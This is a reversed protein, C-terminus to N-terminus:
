SLENRFAPGNDTVIVAPTGFVCFVRAVLLQLTELATTGITPILLVFRTLACVIVLINTFHCGPQTPLPGKHDVHIVSFPQSPTPIPRTPVSQIGGSRTGGCIACTATFDSCDKHIGSWWYSRSIQDILPTHGRHDAYHYHHMLATRMQIPVCLLCRQEM